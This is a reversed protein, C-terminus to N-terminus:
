NEKGEWKVEERRRPLEILCLKCTLDLIIFTCHFRLIQGRNACKSPSLLPPLTWYVM